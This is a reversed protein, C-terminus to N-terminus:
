RFLLMWGLALGAADVLVHSIWGPWISRWNRYCASWVCAASFVALSGLVAVTTGFQAYFALAHHLTFFLASLTVANAGRVLRECQRYVFWRWVFEELLSNVFTLYLAFLVYRTSTSLGAGALKERLSEADILRDGFAFWTAVVLAAMVGGIVFGATVGQRRDRRRLPSFSLFDREVGLQWAIPLVLIWVKALAYVVQGATGPAGYFAFWAGVSPAPVLLCLAAFSRGPARSM